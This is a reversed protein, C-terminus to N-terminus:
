NADLNTRAFEQSVLAWVVNNHLRLLRAALFLLKRKDHDTKSSVDSNAYRTLMGSEQGVRTVKVGMVSVLAWM